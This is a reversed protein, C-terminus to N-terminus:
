FSNTLNLGIEEKSSGSFQMGTNRQMKKKKKQPPPCKKSM